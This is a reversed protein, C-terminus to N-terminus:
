SVPMSSPSAHAMVSEGPQARQGSVSLGEVRDDILRGAGGTTSMASWPCRIGRREGGTRWKAGGMSLPV